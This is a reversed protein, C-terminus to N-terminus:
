RSIEDEVDIEEVKANAYLMTAAYLLSNIKREEFKWFKLLVPINPLARIANLISLQLKLSEIDTDKSPPATLHLLHSDIDIVLELNVFLM